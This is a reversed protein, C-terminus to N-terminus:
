DVGENEGGCDVHGVGPGQLDLRAWWSKEVYTAGDADFGCVRVVQM